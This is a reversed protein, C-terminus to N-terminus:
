ERQVASRVTYISSRRPIQSYDAPPSETAHQIDHPDHQRSSSAVNSGHAAHLSISSGFTSPVLGAPAHTATPRPTPAPAGGTHVHGHSPFQMMLVVFITNVLLDQWVKLWIMIGVLRAWSQQIWLSELYSLEHQDHFQRQVPLIGYLIQRRATELHLRGMNHTNHCILIQLHPDLQLGRTINM